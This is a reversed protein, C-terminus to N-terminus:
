LGNYFEYKKKNKKFDLIVKIFIKLSSYYVTNNLMLFDM